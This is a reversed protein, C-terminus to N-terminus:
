PTGAGSTSWKYGMRRVTVIRRPESPDNEIKRRLRRIYVTLTNNDVYNESCDWLKGLIQEPAIGTHRIYADNVYLVVEDKDAVLINDDLEDMVHQYDVVSHAVEHVSAEIQTLENLLTERALPAPDTQLRVILEHIRDEAHLMISRHLM